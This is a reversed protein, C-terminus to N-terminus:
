KQCHLLFLFCYGIILVLSINRAGRSCSGCLVGTRNFACQVDQNLSESTAFIKVESSLCYDFPCYVHFTIINSGYDKEIMGIWAPPSRKLTRTTIDCYVNVTIDTFTVATVHHSNTFDFPCDKMNNLYMTFNNSDEFGSIDGVREVSLNLEKHDHRSYVTFNLKNCDTSSVNQIYM